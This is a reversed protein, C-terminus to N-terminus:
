ALSQRSTEALAASGAGGKRRWESCLIAAAMAVNLSEGSGVRPITLRRRVLPLVDAAIGHAENGLVMVAPEIAAVTYVSEGDLCAGAVLVSDPLSRLYPVLPTVHVPMRFVAGMSAQVVKPNFREVCSPSCVIREAGFWAATRLITGLNGPDQVDDLCLVLGLPAGAPADAPMRVVALVQNPSEMASVSALESATAVVCRDRLSAPPVWEGTAVVREIAWGADLAERVLTPGEVLFLGEAQRAHKRQLSRVFRRQAASLM